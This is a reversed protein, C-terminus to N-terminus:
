YYASIESVEAGALTREAMECRGNIRPSMTWNAMSGADPDDGEKVHGFGYVHGTEHVMVGVLDVHDSCEPTL